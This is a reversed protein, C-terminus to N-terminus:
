ADHNTQRMVHSTQSKMKKPECLNKKQNAARGCKACIFRPQNVLASYADFDKKLLKDLECLSKAM